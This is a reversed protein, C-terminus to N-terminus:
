QRPQKYSGRTARISRQLPHTPVNQIDINIAQLLFQLGLIIPLVALMVTGASTEIGTAASLYWHYSGFIGGFLTFLSGTLLFLSVPSFDRLFYQVLLRVLFGRLLRPPFEILAKGESLSSFEDAYRAPIYIDRVVAQLLGLELLLSIEFFFRKDIATRNLQTVTSAHIATYGNTPDFINWYGSALKTLFSLGMNGIRRLLPMSELQRLHLFRNGKAYDADGTLLPAILPMLYSPDMQDDSDIKVIIDAGLALAADYGSLVAGGVGQNERHRVLFIRSDSLTSVLAATNDPSCDDVVVIHRVFPPIGALVKQIHTAARYAPIVVAIVCSPPTSTSQGPQIPLPQQQQNFNFTDLPLIVKQGIYSPWDYKWYTGHGFNSAHWIKIQQFGAKAFEELLPNAM